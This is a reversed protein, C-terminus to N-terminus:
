NECTSYFINTAYQIICLAYQFRHYNYINRNFKDQLFLSSAHIYIKYKSCSSWRCDVHHVEEQGGAAELHSRYIRYINGISEARFILSNVHIFLLM